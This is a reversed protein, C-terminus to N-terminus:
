YKLCPRSLSETIASRWEVSLAVSNAIKYNKYEKMSYVSTKEETYKKKLLASLSVHSEVIFINTSGAIFLLWTRESNEKLCKGDIFDIMQSHKEFEVLKVNNKDTGLESYHLNFM